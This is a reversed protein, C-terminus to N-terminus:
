KKTKLYYDLSVFNGNKFPEYEIEYGRFMLSYYREKCGDKMAEAMFHQMIADEIENLGGIKRLDGGGLHERYYSHGSKM